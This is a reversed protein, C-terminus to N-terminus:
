QLKRRRLRFKDIRAEAGDFQDIPYQFKERADLLEHNLMLRRLLFATKGDHFKRKESAVTIPKTSKHSQQPLSM